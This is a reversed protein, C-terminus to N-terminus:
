PHAGEAAKASWLYMAAYARWPRWAESREVADKSRTVGLAKAIGLDGAPFADPHHLVRMAAYAATWPGVGDIATLAETFTDVDTTDLSPAARAIARLTAARKKPLGVARALGTARAIRAPAPFAHTLDEDLDVRTGYRDVLRGSLTTAGRVSVQQGLVTRTLTEFPDFSGPVRLGPQAAVADALVPHQSLREAIATPRADLDFLARVRSVIFMLHPLLATSVHVRLASRKPDHTVRLTGVRDQIAVVRKYADETVREVGPIARARLFDLLADFALPPRYDLRLTEDDGSKPARRRIQSPPMHFREAFAANFRRVSSFGSAFAVDALSMTTDQLLQKALALRRTQALEVPSVGLADVMTRRLHRGTVGLQAALADIRNENLFGADIRAVAQFVLRASADVTAQGPALEPRCRFCARYGAQEAQAGLRYFRCRDKRPTRATCVPRCYIGTTAVAVFFLGDFRPDRASLAAYCADADLM